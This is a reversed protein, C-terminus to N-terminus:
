KTHAPSLKKRRMHSLRDNKGKICNQLIATSTRIFGHRHESLKTLMEQKERGWVTANEELQAELTQIRAEARELKHRLSWEEQDSQQTKLPAPLQHIRELEKRLRGNEAALASKMEKKKLGDEIRDAIEAKTMVDIDTDALLDRGLDQQLSLDSRLQSNEAELSLVQTRLTIIDEAMRSMASRYNEIEQHHFLATGPLETKARSRLLQNDPLIQALADHSPLNYKGRQFQLACLTQNDFHNGFKSLATESVFTTLIQIFILCADSLISITEKLKM